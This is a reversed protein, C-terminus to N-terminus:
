QFLNIGNLLTAIKGSVIFITRYLTMNPHSIHSDGWKNAWKMLQVLM